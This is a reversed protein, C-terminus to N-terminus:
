RAAAFCSSDPYVPRWSGCEVLSMTWDGRRNAPLRVYNGKAQKRNLSIIGNMSLTDLHDDSGVHTEAYLSIAVTDYKGSQISFQHVKTEAFTLNGFLIKGDLFDMKAFGSVECNKSAYDFRIEFCLTGQKAGSGPLPISGLNGPDPRPPVLLSDIPLKGPEVVSSCSLTKASFDASKGTIYNTINGAWTANNGLIVGRFLWKEEPNPSILIADLTDGRRAWTTFYLAAGSDRVLVGKAGNVYADHFKAKGAIWPSSIQWCGGIAASDPPPTLTDVACAPLRQGEIVICIGASGSAKALFLRVDAYAGAQIDAFTIGEHTLVNRGNLLSGRFSRKKGAPIGKIEISQGGRNSLPFRYFMENMSAGTISLEFWAKVSTDPVSTDAGVKGLAAPDIEPLVVRAGGHKDDLGPATEPKLGTADEGSKMCGSLGISVIFLASTWLCSKNQM